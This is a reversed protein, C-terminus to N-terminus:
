SPKRYQPRRQMKAEKSFPSIKAKNQPIRMGNQLGNFINNSSSSSPDVVVVHNPILQIPSPNLSHPPKLRKKIKPSPRSPRLSPSIIRESRMSLNHSHSRSDALYSSQEPEYNSIDLISSNDLNRDYLNSVNTPFMPSRSIDNINEDKESIMRNLRSITIKPPPSPPNKKSKRYNRFAEIALLIIKVVIFGTSLFPVIINLSIIIDGLTKRLEFADSKTRDAVALVCISVNFVLLLIEFIIQQILNIRAKLPRMIILYLAMVLNIVAIMLAQTLPYEYAYGVIANFCAVRLIFVLLFIQQGFFADKYTGFFARLHEWKEEIEKTTVNGKDKSKRININVYIMTYVVIATLINFGACVLLSINSFLDDLHVTQFELASYLVIDGVTGCYMIM